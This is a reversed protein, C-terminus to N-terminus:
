HTEGTQPSTVEEASSPQSTGRVDSNALVTVEYTTYARLMDTSEVDRGVAISVTTSSGGDVTLSATHSDTPCLGEQGTGEVKSFTVIYRDADVVTQWSVRVSASEPSAEVGEPTDPPVTTSLPLSSITLTFQLQLWEGLTITMEESEGPLQNSANAAVSFIYTEGQTLGTIETSTSDQDVSETEDGGSGSALRYHVAYGILM